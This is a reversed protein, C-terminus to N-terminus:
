EWLQSGHGTEEESTINGSDDSEESNEGSTEETIQIRPTNAPKFNFIVEEESDSSSIESPKTWAKSTAVHKFYFVVEEGSKRRPRQARAGRPKFNFKVEEEKGSSADFKSDENFPKQSAKRTPRSPAAVSKPLFYQADNFKIEHV